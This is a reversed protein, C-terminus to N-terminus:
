LIVADDCPYAAPQSLEEADACEPEAEGHEDCEDWAAHRANQDVQDRHYHDWRLLGNVYVLCGPKAPIDVNLPM